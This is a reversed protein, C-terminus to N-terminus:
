QMRLWAEKRSSIIDASGRREQIQMSSLSSRSFPTFAGSCTSSVWRTHLEARVLKAQM